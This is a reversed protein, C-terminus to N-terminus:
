IEKLYLGALEKAVALVTDSKGIGIRGAINLPKKSKYAAKILKHLEAHNLEM